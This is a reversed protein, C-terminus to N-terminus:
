LLLDETYRTVKYIYVFTSKTAYPLTKFTKYPTEGPLKDSLIVALAGNKAEKKIKKWTEMAIQPISFIYIIDAQGIDAKFYDEMRIKVKSKLIKAKLKGYIVHAPSLEYGILYRFGFKEAAFLFNGSGCGLDYIVMDTSAGLNDFINQFYKKPTAVYPVGIRFFAYILYLLYSFLVMPIILLILIPQTQM